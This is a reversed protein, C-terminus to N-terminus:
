FGFDFSSISYIWLSVFTLSLSLFCALFSSIMMLHMTTLSSSSCSFSEHSWLSSVDLSAFSFSFGFSSISTPPHLSFILFFLLVLLVDTRWPLLVVRSHTTTSNRFRHRCITVFWINVMHHSITTNDFLSVVSQLYCQHLRRRSVFIFYVFLNSDLNSPVDGVM